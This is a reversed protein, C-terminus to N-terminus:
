ITGPKEKSQNDTILYDIVDLQAVQSFATHGIKTHDAVVIRM